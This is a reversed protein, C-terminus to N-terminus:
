WTAEQNRYGTPVIVRRAGPCVPCDRGTRAGPISMRRTERGGEPCGRQGRWPGSNTEREGRGPVRM